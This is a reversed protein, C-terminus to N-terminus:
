AIGVLKGFRRPSNFKLNGLLWMFIVDAAYSGNWDLRSTFLEKGKKEGLVQLEMQSTTWGYGRVTKGDVDTAPIALDWTVPCGDVEVINRFGLSVLEEGSGRNVLIREKDDMLNLLNEYADRTLTILDIRDDPGQGVMSRILLARIYDIAFDAWAQVGSGPNYLTNVILPTWMRYMPHTSAVSGAASGLVTSIAAYTDAHVTALLDSSSQSGATIGMMSEIGHFKEGAIGAASEGDVYFETALSRIVGERMLKERGDFIKIMAEPGGQELKERLSIAESVYYGRRPLYANLKTDLRTVQTPVMDPFGNLGFESKRVVWRHQGGSHGYSILGKKELMAVMILNRKTEESVKKSWEAITAKAVRESSSSVGDGRVAM